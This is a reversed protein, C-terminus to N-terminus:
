QITIPLSPSITGVGTISLPDAVIFAAYVTTNILAPLNPVAVVVFGEGGGGLIGTTNFFVGNSPALSFLLLDDLNLPIVRADSLIIGPMDGLAFGCIYSGGPDAPSVIDVSTSTGIVAPASLSLSATGQTSVRQFNLDFPPTTPNARYQWTVDWDGATNNSAPYLTGRLTPSYYAHQALTPPALTVIPAFSAAGLPLEVMELAGGNALDRFVVRTTATAEDCALAFIYPAAIVTWNALPIDSLIVEASWGNLVDWRKYRLKVTTSTGGAGSDMMYVAHVNGLADACLSGYQDQPLTNDGLITVASWTASTPDYYTHLYPGSTGVLSSDLYSCHIYGNADAAIHVRRSKGASGTGFPGLRTFTLNSAYPMNSYALRQANNATGNCTLWVTGNGDVAIVTTDVTINPAAVQATVDVIPSSTAAIPDYQRYFTRYSAPSSQVAVWSAHLTGLDDVALGSHAVLATGSMGSSADNFVFPDLSWNAGGNISSQLLLPRNGM